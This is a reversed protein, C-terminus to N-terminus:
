HKRAGVQHSGQTIIDHADTSSRVKLLFVPGSNRRAQLQSPDPPLLCDGYVSMARKKRGGGGLTNEIGDLTLRALSKRRQDHHGSTAPPTVAVGAATLPDLGSASKSLYKSQSSLRRQNLKSAIKLSTGRSPPLKPQFLRHAHHHSGGGGSSGENDRDNTMVITPLPQQRRRHRLSKQSVDDDPGMSDVLSTMSELTMSCM